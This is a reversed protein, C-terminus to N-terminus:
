STTRGYFLPLMEAIKERRANVAGQPLYLLATALDGPLDAGVTQATAEVTSFDIAVTATSGDLQEVDVSQPESQGLLQHLAQDRTSLSWISDLVSQPPNAWVLFRLPDGDVLDKIEAPLVVRVAKAM